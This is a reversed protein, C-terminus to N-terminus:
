DWGVLRLESFSGQLKFVPAYSECRGRIGKQVEHIRFIGIAMRFDLPPM